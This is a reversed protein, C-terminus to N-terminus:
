INSEGAETTKLAPGKDGGARATTSPGRLQGPLRGDIPDVSHTPQNVAAWTYLQDHQTLCLFFTM